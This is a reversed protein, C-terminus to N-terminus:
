WRAAHRANAVSAAARTFDIVVDSHAFLDASDGGVRIDLHGLGALEGVDRGLLPSDPAECGGALEVAESATIEAVLMRGMKGGVGALGIRTTNKM